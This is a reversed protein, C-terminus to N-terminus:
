MQVLIAGLVPGAQILIDKIFASEKLTYVDPLDPGFLPATAYRQFGDLIKRLRIIDRGVEGGTALHGQTDTM